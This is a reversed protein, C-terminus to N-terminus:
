GTDRDSMVAAEWNKSEYPPVASWSARALVRHLFCVSKWLTTRFLLPLHSIAKSYSLGCRKRMERTREADEVRTAMVEVRKM